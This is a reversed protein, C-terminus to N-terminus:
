VRWVAQQYATDPPSQFLFSNFRRSLGTSPIIMGPRHGKKLTESETNQSSVTRLNNTEAPLSECDRGLRKYRQFSM